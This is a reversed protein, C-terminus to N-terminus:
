SRIMSRLDRSSRTGFPRHTATVDYDHGTARISSTRIAEDTTEIVKVLDVRHCGVAGRGAATIEEGSGQRSAPCSDLQSKCTSEVVLM